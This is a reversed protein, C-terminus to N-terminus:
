ANPAHKSRAAERSFYLCTRRHGSLARANQKVVRCGPAGCALNDNQELQALAREIKGMANGLTNASCTSLGPVAHLVVWELDEFASKLDSLTAKSPKNM